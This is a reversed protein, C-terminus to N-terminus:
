APADFRTETSYATSPADERWGRDVIQLREAPWPRQLKLATRVDAELWVQWEDDMLIVPMGKPNVERVVDNAETTLISFLLHEKTQNGRRGTWPRWIGAFAFLPRTQDIAFWHPLKPQDGYYCFSTAPVLCRFEKNLWPRWSSNHANRINAIPRAGIGPPAPFGWRMAVLEREGAPSLRVIPALQDRLIGPLPPQGELHDREIGFVRRVAEQPATMSYLNSM